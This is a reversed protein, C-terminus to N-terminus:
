SSEDPQYIRDAPVATVFRDVAEDIASADKGDFTIRVRYKQDLVPYSGVDVTEFAQEIESLLVAIDTERLTTYVVRSLFPRSAGLHERLIPLKARFIGPLGPLVYVNRMLITPWDFEGGEVMEAGDPVEAMRLHGENLREAVLERIRCELHASRVVPVEFAKAVAKITVDDHTPGVGGSTFVYTHRASLHTVEDAIVDVKDQCIVVRQMEIGLRFLEKALVELNSEQVKGTLIENGILLAAATRTM